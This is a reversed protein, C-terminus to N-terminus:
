IRVAVKTNPPVALLPSPVGAALPPHNATAASPTATQGPGRHCVSYTGAADSLLQIFNTLPSLAASEVSTAAVTTITKIATGLKDTVLGGEPMMVDVGDHSRALKHYEFIKCTWM